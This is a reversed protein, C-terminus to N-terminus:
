HKKKILDYRCIFHAFLCDSTFDYEEPDQSDQIHGTPTIDWNSNVTEAQTTVCLKIFTHCKFFSRAAYLASNM